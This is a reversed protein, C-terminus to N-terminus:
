KATGRFHAILTYRPALEAEEYLEIAEPHSNEIYVEDGIFVKGHMKVGRLRPLFPRISTSGPIFRAM